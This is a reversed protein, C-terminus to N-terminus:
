KHTRRGVNALPLFQVPAPKPAADTKKEAVSCGKACCSGLKSKRGRFAQIAQYLVYAACLGVVLVVAINQAMSNMNLKRGNAGARRPNVGAFGLALPIM